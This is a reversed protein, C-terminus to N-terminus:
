DILANGNCNPHKAANIKPNTSNKIQIIIKKSFHNKTLFFIFVVLEIKQKACIRKLTVTKKPSQQM